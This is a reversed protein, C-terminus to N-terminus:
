HAGGKGVRFTIVNPKGTEKKQPPPIHGRIHKQHKQKKTSGGGGRFWYLHRSEQTNKLPHHPHKKVM